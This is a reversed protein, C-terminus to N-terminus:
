LNVGTKTFKLWESRHNIVWITIAKNFGIDYGAKESEIWKLRDIEEKELFVLKYINSKEIPFYQGTM